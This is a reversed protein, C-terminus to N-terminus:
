NGLVTKNINKEKENKETRNQSVYFQLAAYVPVDTPLL